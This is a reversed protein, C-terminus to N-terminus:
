ELRMAMQLRQHHSFGDIAGSMGFNGKSPMTQLGQGFKTDMQQTGSKFNTVSGTLNFQMTNMKNGEKSSQKELKLDGDTLQVKGLGVKDTNMLNNQPKNPNTYPATEVLRQPQATLKVTMGEPM